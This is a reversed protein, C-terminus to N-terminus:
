DSARGRSWSRWCMISVAPGSIEDDGAILQQLAIGLSKRRTRPLSEDEILRLEDLVELGFRSSRNAIDLRIPVTARIRVEARSDGRHITSDSEFPLGQGVQIMPVIGCATASGISRPRSWSRKCANDRTTRGKMKRRVLFSTRVSSGGRVSTTRKGFKRLFFAFAVVPCSQRGKGFQGVFLWTLVFLLLSDLDQCPQRSKSLEGAM